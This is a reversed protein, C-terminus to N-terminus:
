YVDECRAGQEFWLASETRAVEEAEKHEDYVKAMNDIAEAFTYDEYLMYYLNRLANISTRLEDKTMSQNYKHVVDFTERLTVMMDKTSQM